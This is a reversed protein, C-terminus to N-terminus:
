AVGAGAIENGNSELGAQAMADGYSDSGLGGIYGADGIWRPFVVLMVKRLVSDVM